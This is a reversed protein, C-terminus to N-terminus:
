EDLRTQAEIVLRQRAQSIKATWTALHSRWMEGQQIARTRPHAITGVARATGTHARHADFAIAHMHHEVRHFRRRQLVGHHPMACGCFLRQKRQGRRLRVRQLFPQHFEFAHHLHGNVSRNLLQRPAPPMRSTAFRAARVPQRQQRTVPTLQQAQDAMRGITSAGIQRALTFIVLAHKRAARGCRPMRAANSKDKRTGAVRNGVNTEVQKALPRFNQTFLVSFILAEGALHADILEPVACRRSIQAAVMACQDATLHSKACLNGIQRRAKADLRGRRNTVAQTFRGRQKRHAGPALAVGHELAQVSRGQECAVEGARRLHQPPEPLQRRCLRDLPDGAHHITRYVLHTRGDRSKLTDVHQDDIGRVFAHNAAVPHHDFFDHGHESAVPEGQLTHTRHVAFQQARHLTCVALQVAELCLRAGINLEVTAGPAAGVRRIALRRCIRNFRLCQARNIKRAHNAGGIRRTHLSEDFDARAIRAAPHDALNELVPWVERFRERDGARRRHRM